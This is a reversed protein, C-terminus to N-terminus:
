HIIIQNNEITYEIKYNTNFSELVQEITEVDFSAGFEQKALLQNKNIIVVNYQRELKKIIDEFPTHRFIIRGNIWATHLEVDAKEINVQNNNKQWAAKFGPKLLTATKPNYSKGKKYISVSGEVLVTNINDDEPYSSINFKTGLVRVDMEDVNVVFPHSADKTVEFFAEGKLFVKRDENKIFNVPYRLSTGANLHVNTGDSLKLEFRKGYPVTLTNYVLKEKEADKAYVIQAGKQEGVVKGKTDLVQSAGGEEIIKVNGNELQLTINNSPIIINSEKQFFGSQYLYGIGLFLIALAAYKFISLRNKLYKVNVNKKLSAKNFVLPRKLKKVTHDWAADSNITEVFKLSRSKKYVYLYDSFLQKNEPKANIWKELENFEEESIEKSIYSAVLNFIHPSINEM